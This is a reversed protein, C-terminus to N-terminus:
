TLVWTYGGSAAVQVEEGAEIAASVGGFSFDPLNFSVAIGGGLAADVQIVVAFFPGAQDEPGQASIGVVMGADGGEEVGATLGVTAYPAADLINPAGVAYGVACDAGVVLDAQGGVEFCLSVLDARDLKSMEDSVGPSQDIADAIAQQAAGPNHATLVSGLGTFNDAADVFAAILGGYLQAKERAQSHLTPYIAANAVASLLGAAKTLHEPGAQAVSDFLAQTPSKHGTAASVANEAAESATGTVTGVPDSIANAVSSMAHTFDDFLSM